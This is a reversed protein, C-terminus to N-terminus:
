PPCHGTADCKQGPCHEGARCCIGGQCNNAVCAPDAGDKDATTCAGGIPTSCTGRHTLDPDNANSGCTQPLTCKTVQCCVGDVCHGTTCQDDKQCATGSDLKPLPAGNFVGDYPAGKALWAGIRALEPLTLKRNCKGSSASIAYPMFGDKPDLVHLIASEDVAKAGPAVVLKDAYWHRTVGDYFGNPGSKMELGSQGGKKGHCAGNQCKAVGTDNNVFDRYIEGFTTGGSAVEPIQDCVAVYIRQNDTLTPLGARDSCSVVVLGLGISAVAPLAFRSSMREVIYRSERAGNSADKPARILM